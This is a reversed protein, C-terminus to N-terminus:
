TQTSASVDQQVALHTRFREIEPGGMERRHRKNHFVICRRSWRVYAQETRYAYHKARPADRLGDLLRPPQPNISQNDRARSPPLNVGYRCWRGHLGAM